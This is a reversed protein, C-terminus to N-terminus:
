LPQKEEVEAWTGVAERLWTMRAPSANRDRYSYRGPGKLDLKHNNTSDLEYWRGGPDLFTKPAKPEQYIGRRKEAWDLAYWQAVLLAVRAVVVSIPLDSVFPITSRM